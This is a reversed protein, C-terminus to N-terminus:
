AKTKAIEAKSTGPVTTYSLPEKWGLLFTKVDMRKKGSLQVDTLRLAGDATAIALYTKGDSLIEGPQGKLSEDKEAFFIKLQQPEGGEKRVMTFATPYPSLGRILNYISSTSDNWDIHCLERTLKPAPKLVESGQIFSRQVRTEINKELIATATQVVLEAGMGMLRDHLDGATDTESIRCDERLLIGGTDIDKDIMFTTVGSIREGNIVAWNIPAAGRYQPLLAAHLNFTGLPPMSWVEQPLMRFGVVIFLDAKIASLQELFEPDKLKIPQLVPIGHEVACKKVPSENMKLGRGSPKDAVTVVAAIDFGEKILAELPAVAFEPTGMYVIKNKKLLGMIKSKLKRWGSKIKDGTFLSEDRIAKGSLYVGIPFLVITSIFAGAAAKIAGDNALKIGTIDVIYYLVFFLVAVIASAGLGSKKTASAGIPAGILFMLFCALAQSIKKLIEVDSHRIIWRPQYADSDWNKARGSMESAENVAKEYASKAAAQSKWKGVKSIDFPTKGEFHSSTDLQYAYVLGKSRRMAEAQKTMISDLKFHATDLGHRLQGTNMSKVQDGYRVGTSQKYAYNELPIVMRQVDFDIRSLQLTTDKYKITNTEQYNIGNYLTFAIYDKNKSMKIQASDAIMVTTNGKNATHDYVLVGHMMGTKEDEYDVRLIYGEIGNYFTGAPISVESKTKGIDDRMTYIKNFAVPVLNNAALYALVTIFAAAIGVPLMVRQLSIGAAKIAILENNEALQGMLFVSALLAALPLSIPLMTASGWALFQLIISLSLGKGVLEDIYLWLFQMMLIFIVIVLVAFFPGVFSKLLFKDLKKM